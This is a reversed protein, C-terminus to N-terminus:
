VPVARRRLLVLGLGVSVGMLVVALGIQVGESVRVGSGLLAFVATQPVYGVVSAALFPGAAVGSVGALANLAINSGVPLLRLTLTAKFAHAVLFRELRGLRESRALWRSAWRRAVVRACWFDAACGVVEAVLALGAGVWFGFALAGAYAVVQRPLGVACAVAGFVTFVLPGDKGAREVAADLGLQRLAVGVVALGALLLVPRVALGLWRRM